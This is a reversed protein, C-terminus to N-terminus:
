NGPQGTVVNLEFYLHM